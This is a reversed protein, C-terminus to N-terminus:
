RISAICQISIYEVENENVVHLKKLVHDVFHVQGDFEVNFGDKWYEFTLTLNYEVAEAIQFEYEEIQQPDLKPKQCKLMEHQKEKLMSVHEPLMMATWKINGRDRNDKLNM